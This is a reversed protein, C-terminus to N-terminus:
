MAVRRVNLLSTTMDVPDIIGIKRPYNSSRLRAASVIGYLWESIVAVIVFFLVPCSFTEFQFPRCAFAVLDRRVSLTVSLAYGDTATTGTRPLPVENDLRASLAALRGTAKQARCVDIDGRV